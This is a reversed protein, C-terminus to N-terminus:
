PFYWLGQESQRACLYFLLCPMLLFVKYYDRWGLTTWQLAFWITSGCCVSCLSLAIWDPCEKLHWSIVKTGFHVAIFFQMCSSGTLGQISVRRRTAWEFGENRLDSTHSFGENAISSKRHHSMNIAMRHAHMLLILMQKLILVVEWCMMMWLSM